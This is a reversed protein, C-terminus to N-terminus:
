KTSFIVYAIFNGLNLILFFFFSSTLESHFCSIKSVNKDPVSLILDRIKRYVKLCSCSISTMKQVKQLRISKERCIGSYRYMKQEYHQFSSFRVFSM